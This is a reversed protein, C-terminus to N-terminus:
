NLQDVFTKFYDVFPNLKETNDLVDEIIPINEISLKDLMELSMPVSIKKTTQHVAFPSKLLHKIDGTVNGDIKIFLEYFKEEDQMETDKFYDIYKTMLDKVKNFLEKNEYSICDVIGRRERTSLKVAGEDCVWIHMGRGGSFVYLIKKYGFCKTLVYNMIHAACKILKLCENCMTKGECCTRKYDTLDVDFVLEKSVATMGAGTEPKIDYIAGLDMKLPVKKLIYASLEDSSDFSLARVFTNSNCITIAYERFPNSRMFKYISEFPFNNNYYLALYDNLEM